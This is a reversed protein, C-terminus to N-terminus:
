RSTFFFLINTSTAAETRRSFRALIAAAFRTLIFKYKRRQWRRVRTRQVVGRVPYSRGHNLTRVPGARCRRRDGKSSSSGVKSHRDRRGFIVFHRVYKPSAIVFLRLTSTSNRIDRTRVRRFPFLTVDLSLQPGRGPRQHVVSSVRYLTM